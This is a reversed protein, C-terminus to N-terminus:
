TKFSPIVSCSPLCFSFVTSLHSRTIRPWFIVKNTPHAMANRFNANQLLELFFLCHPYRCWWCFCHALWKRQQLFFWQIVWMIYKIYEPRQWYKLYKLYGIFAEDEFYRNQALDIQSFFSCEFWGHLVLCSTCQVLFNLYFVLLWSACLIIIDLLVVLLIM